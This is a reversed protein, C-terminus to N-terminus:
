QYVGIELFLAAGPLFAQLGEDLATLALDHGCKIGPQLYPLSDGGEGRLRVMPSQWRCWLLISTNGRYVRGSQERVLGM